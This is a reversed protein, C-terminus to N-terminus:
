TNEVWQRQFRDLIPTHLKGLRFIYMSTVLKVDLQFEDTYPHLLFM